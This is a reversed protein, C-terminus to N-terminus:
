KSVLGKIWDYIALMVKKGKVYWWSLFDMINFAVFVICMVAIVGFIINFFIM